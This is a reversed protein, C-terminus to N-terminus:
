EAERERPPEYAVSHAEIERGDATYTGRGGKMVCTVLDVRGTQHKIDSHFALSILSLHDVIDALARHPFIGIHLTHYAPKGEDNLVHVHLNIRAHRM